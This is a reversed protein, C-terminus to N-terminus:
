RSKHLVDYLNRAEASTLRVSSRGNGTWVVLDHLGTVSTSVLEASGPDSSPAFIDGDAEDPGALAAGFAAHIQQTRQSEAFREAPTNAIRAM